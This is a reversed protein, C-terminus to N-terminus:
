GGPEALVKAQQEPTLNEAIWALAEGPASTQWRRAIDVQVEGRQAPDTMAAAWELADKPSERALTRSFAQIAADRGSGPNMKSLFESAAMADKGTWNEFVDEFAHDQSPGAPLKSTWAAAERPNQNALENAVDAVAEHADARGALSEAWEVAGPMDERIFRYGVTELASTRMAEGPLRVSWEAGAAVGDRLKQDVLVGVLDGQAEEGLTTLYQLAADLDVRALGTLVGRSMAVADDGSSGDEEVDQVWRIAAEPDTAAWAALAASKASGSERRDPLGDFAALAAQGDLQGWAHALLGVFRSSDGGAELAELLAPANSKTLEGLLETFRATGEVPDATGLVVKAADRM